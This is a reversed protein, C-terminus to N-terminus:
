EPREKLEAALAAYGAIDVLSDRKVDNCLRALKLDMMMIAVDYPEITVGLYQTWRDAIRGFNEQPTGYEAQRDGNILDHADELLLSRATQSNM